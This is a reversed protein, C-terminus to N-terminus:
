QSVPGGRRSDIDLAVRLEERSGIGLKAYVHNIHNGITRVSLFLMGAIERKSMGRAALLAVEQERRTLNGLAQRHDGTELMPTAAPGCAALLTAARMAAERERVRLGQAAALGRAGAACEAAHLRWGAEEFADAVDLLAQADKAGRAHAHRAFTAVVRGECKAAAEDLGDIVVGPDAGLRLADHLALAGTALQGAEMLSKGIKEALERAHSREGRASAAWARGLEVDVDIHHMGPPRVAVLADVAEHAGDADGAAGLAQALTAFTWPLIGRFDEHHLLSAADRLRAAAETLRGQALASRGLLLSWAGVFPDGARKVADDHLAGVLADIEELEGSFLRVVFTAIMVGASTYISLDPGAELVLRMATPLEADVASLHGCMADSILVGSYARLRADLPAAAEDLVARGVEISELARGAFMLMQSRQAVLAPAHEPGVREITRCLRADAEDFRGLGFYLSSAVLLGARAVHAPSATDPLDGGLMAVVENHEGAWYLIDGLVLMSDLDGGSEVAARAFRQALALDGRSGAERAADDLSRPEAHVGAELELVATRLRDDRRRAGVSRLTEAVLAAMQMRRERSLAAQVAQAYLPHVLRLEDRRGSADSRVVGQALAASCAASTCALEVVRRGLPESVALIEVVDRAAPSMSRLREEILDHISPPMSAAESLSWVGGQEVLAREQRAHRVLERVFLLNGQTADFLRRRSRADLPAGLAVHLLEDLRAEELADVEIRRAYEDKWLRTVADPVREGTRVTALVRTGTQAALLVLGASADDLLHADDVALVTRELEGDGALSRLARSLAAFPAGPDLDSALVGAFAGFPVAALSETAAVRVTRSAFPGIREVAEALLRSKGIGAHGVLVVGARGNEIEALQQERGVFPWGGDASGGDM